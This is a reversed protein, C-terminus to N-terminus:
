SECSDFNSLKGLEKSVEYVKFKQLKNFVIEKSIVEM